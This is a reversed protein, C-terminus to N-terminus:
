HASAMYGFLVSVLKDGGVADVVEWIGKKRGDYENYERQGSREGLIYAMGKEDYQGWPERGNIFLIMKEAFTEAIKQEAPSLYENYNLFLYAM